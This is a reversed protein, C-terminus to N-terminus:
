SSMYLSHASHRGQGRRAQHLMIRYVFVPLLFLLISYILVETLSEVSRGQRSKLAKTRPHARLASLVAENMGFILLDHKQKAEQLAIAIEELLHVCADDPWVVEHPHYHLVDNFQTDVPFQVGSSCVLGREEFIEFRDHVWVASQVLM